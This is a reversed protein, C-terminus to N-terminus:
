MALPFSCRDTQWSEPMDDFVPWLAELIDEAAKDEESDVDEYDHVHRKTTEKVLIEDRRDDRVWRSLWDRMLADVVKRVSAPAGGSVSFVAGNRIKITLHELAASELGKGSSICQFIARALGEDVASNIFADRHFFEREFSTFAPDYPPEPLDSEGDDEPDEKAWSVSHDSCDLALHLIKLKPLSGLM